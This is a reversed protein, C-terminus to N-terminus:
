QDAGRGARLLGAVCACTLLLPFVGISIVGHSMSKISNMQHLPPAENTSLPRLRVRCLSGSVVSCHSSCLCVM